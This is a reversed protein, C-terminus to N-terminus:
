RGRGGSIRDPRRWASLVLLTKTGTVRGTARLQDVARRLHHVDQVRFRVLADPDGATTYVEQVEPLSRASAEIDEMRTNGVMRIETFAELSWGLKDHDIVATYGTIVDLRELRDIRRKVAPASLGVQAGLDALTRRSNREMAALLERDVDDLAPLATM